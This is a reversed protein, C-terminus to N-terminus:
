KKSGLVLRRLEGKEGGVVVERARPSVALSYAWGRIAALDEVVEVTEPDVVRVHGDSCTVVARKGDATWDVALAASEFRVFRVLRGITPQWFRVTRDDSVSALLPLEEPTRAPRMTLDHVARTHNELVGRRTGNRADWVRLSRDVGATILTKGDLSYCAALLARSHGRVRHTEKGERATHVSATRDHSACAWSQSDPSWAVATVLDDHPKVHYLRRGEPWRFVEVAGEEAPRGGGAALLEGNPAFEVDHIHLLDTELRRDVKLEPWSRVELGAQSGVLVWRGDPSFALATM